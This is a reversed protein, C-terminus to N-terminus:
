FTMLLQPQSNHKDVTASRLVFPIPHLRSRACACLVRESSPFLFLRTNIEIFMCHSHTFSHSHRQFLILSFVIRANILLIGHDIVSRIFVFSYWSHILTSINAYSTLLFSLRASSSCKAILQQDISITEAEEVSVSHIQVRSYRVNWM